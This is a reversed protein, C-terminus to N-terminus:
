GKSEVAQSVRRGCSRSPAAPQVGRRDLTMCCSVCLDSSFVDGVLFVRYGRGCYPCRRNFRRDDRMEVFEFVPIKGASRRM